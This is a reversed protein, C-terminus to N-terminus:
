CLCQFTPRNSFGGLTGNPATAELCSFKRRRKRFCKEFNRERNRNTGHAEFLNSAANENNHKPNSVLRNCARLPNGGWKGGMWGEICGLSAAARM